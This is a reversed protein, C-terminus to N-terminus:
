DGGDVLPDLEIRLALTVSEGDDNGLVLPVRLGRRGDIEAQGVSVIRLDGGIRAGAADKAPEVSAELPLADREGLAEGEELIAAEMVSIADGPEPEPETESEVPEYVPVPEPLPPLSREGGLESLMRVVRKSLTTLTPLVGTGETAVAEFVAADALGLERHLSEIAYADALDRQNYQVVVPLQDISRGYDHLFERLEDLAAVNAETQDPQANAVFVVGDVADLLQKRTPAQEPAGPVAVLELQTRVGNVEGLSIPLVEYAVTPDIRTPTASLEGRSGAKLKGHITRLNTSVGAGPPGWYLLRATLASADPRM